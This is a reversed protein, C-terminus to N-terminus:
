KKEVCAALHAGGMCGVLAINKASVVDSFAELLEVSLTSKSKKEAELLRLSNIIRASRSSVGRDPSEALRCLLQWSGKEVVVIEEGTIEREENCLRTLNGHKTYCCPVLLFAAGVRMALQLALDTLGGCCHLGVFVQAENLAKCIRISPDTGEKTDGMPGQSQADGCLFRINILGLEKAWSEGATLSPENKDIVTVMIHPFRSAISVALDGRGGGVDVIRIL